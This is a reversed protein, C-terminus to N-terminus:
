RPSEEQVIRSLNETAQTLSEILKESVLDEAEYEMQNRARHASVLTRQSIGDLTTTHPLCAFVTYRDESRYGRRWLAALALGHAAGYTLMFRSMPTLTRQRADQLLGVSKQILTEIEAASRRAVTLKGVEVLNELPSPGM